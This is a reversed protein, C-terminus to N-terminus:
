KMVALVDEDAIGLIKKMRILIEFPMTVPNNIYKGMTKECINLKKALQINNIAYYAMRSKIVRSFQAETGVKNNPM